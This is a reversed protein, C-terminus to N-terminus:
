GLNRIASEDSNVPFFPVMVSSQSGPGVKKWAMQREDTYKVM